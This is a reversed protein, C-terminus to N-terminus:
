QLTTASGWIWRAIGAVILASCTILITAIMWFIGIVAMGPWDFPKRWTEFKMEGSRVQDLEAPSVWFDRDICIGKVNINGVENSRDQLLEPAIRSACRYTIEQDFTESVSRKYDDFVGWGHWFAAALGVVPSLRLGRWFWSSKIIGRM